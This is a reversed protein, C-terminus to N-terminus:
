RFIDQILSSFDKETLAKSWRIEDDPKTHTLQSQYMAPPDSWLLFRGAQLCHGRSAAEVAAEKETLFRLLQWRDRGIVLSFGVEAGAPLQHGLLYRTQAVRHGAECLREVVSELTISSPHQVQCHHNAKELIERMKGNEIIPAWRIQDEPLRVMQASDSHLTEPFSAAALCGRSVSHPSCSAWDEGENAGEFHFLRVPHDDVVLEVGSSVRAPLWAQLVPWQRDIQHGSERILECARALCPDAITHLTKDLQSQYIETEPHSCIWSHWELTLFSLPKLHKGASPGEVCRGEVDWVSGSSPDVFGDESCELSLIEGDVSRHYAGMTHTGPLCLVVFPIDGATANIVFNEKWLEVLPIALAGFDENVGLVLDNEKLLSVDLDGSQISIFFPEELGEKGPYQEAGHGHRGDRHSPHKWVMVEGDPHLRCFDEFSGQYVPIRTLIQGAREGGFCAGDAVSWWSESQHDKAAASANYAGATWFTLDTDGSRRM